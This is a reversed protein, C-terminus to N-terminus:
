LVYLEYKSTEDITQKVKRILIIGQSMLLLNLYANLNYIFLQFM